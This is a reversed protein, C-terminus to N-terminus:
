SAYLILGSVIAAVAVVHDRSIREQLVVGSLVLVMVHVAGMSMYVIGIELTTLSLLFSLQAVVFLTLASGLIWIRRNRFYAKYTVQALATAVLAVALVLWIM